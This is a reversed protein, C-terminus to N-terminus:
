IMSHFFFLFFHHPTMSDNHVPPYSYPLHSLNSSVQPDVTSICSFSRFLVGDQIANQQSQLTDKVEPSDINIPARFTPPAESM